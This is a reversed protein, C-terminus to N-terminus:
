AGPKFALDLDRAARVDDLRKVPLGHPAQRVREPDTEAEQQISTMVEIFRDLDEKAETE